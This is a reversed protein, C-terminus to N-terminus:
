GTCTTSMPAQELSGEIGVITSEDGTGNSLTFLLATGAGGSVVMHSQFQGRGATIPHGAYVRRVDGATDGGRVGEATHVSPSAQGTRYMSSVGLVTGNKALVVVEDSGNLPYSDCTVSRTVAGVLGTASLDQTSMGAQIQATGGFTLATPDPAAAAAASSAPASSHPASSSAPATEPLCACLVITTIRAGEGEGDAIAQFGTGADSDAAFVLTRTGDANTQSHVPRGYLSAADGVTSGPHIGDITRGGDHPAIATLVGDTFTLDCDRWVVQVTGSGPVPPLDNAVSRIEGASHGIEVGDRGTSTLATRASDLDRTAQLRTTLQDANDATVFLGGTAAAICSLDDDGDGGTRFGITSITLAPRRSHLDTAVDCPPTGCSDEGDSVLVIAQDGSPPLQNAAQTLAAAIPTYGSPTIADISRTAAAADLPGLPILTTVDVCGKAKDEPASGTRTGYALLTFDNRAPLGAVLSDAAHKAADIRPGPADNEKMSGSADIILATPISRQATTTGAAGGTAATSGEGIDGSSCGAVMLLLALLLIWPTSNRM